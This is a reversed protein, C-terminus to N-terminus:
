HVIGRRVYIPDAVTTPRSTEIAGAEDCSVDVILSGPRLRDLDSEYVLHDTRTVDWLVANVIVDYCEIEERLRGSTLADYVRVTCGGREAARIAGMAVNGTGIVAVRCDYPVHGWQLFAHAVAAEGALENNRWFCHRGGEFMDEWAVATMRHRLLLDTMARGQVAHVWGFLTKGPGYYSAEVVPKPDCVIPCADVEARTGIRAGKSAYSADDCGLPAGYGREFVLASPDRVLRLDDPVLARRLEQEKGPIPFGVTRM